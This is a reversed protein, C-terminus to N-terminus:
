QSNVSSMLHEDDYRTEVDVRQCKSHGCFTLGLIDRNKMQKYTQYGFICVSPIIRLIRLM